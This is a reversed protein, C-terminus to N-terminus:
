YIERININNDRMYTHMKEFVGINKPAIKNSQLVQWCEGIDGCTSATCQTTEGVFELKNHKIQYVKLIYKNWGYMKSHSKLQKTYYFNKNKM